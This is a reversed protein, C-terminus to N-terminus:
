YCMYAVCFVIVPLGMNDLCNREMIPVDNLDKVLYESYSLFTSRASTAIERAKLENLDELLFSFTVSDSYLFPTSWKEASGFDASGSGSTGVDESKHYFLTENIECGTLNYYNDCQLSSAFTLEACDFCSINVTETFFITVFNENINIIYHTVSPLNTDPIYSVAKQANGNLIAVIPNGNMDLIFETTFTIYSTDRDIFLTDIRKIENLDELSVNIVIFLGNPSMTTSTTLRVGTRSRQANQVILANATYTSSNVPENFFLTLLGTNLDVTFMDLKPQTRDAFYVTARLTTLDVGNPEDSLDFIANDMLTIYSSNRNTALDVILQIEDLDVKSLMVEIINRNPSIVRGRKLTYRSGSQIDNASHFVIRPFAVSQVNVTEDFYLTFIGSDLDLDFRVFEPNVNDTMYTNVGIAMSSPVAEVYNGNMDKITFSTLSIYTDLSDTALNTLQKIINADYTAIKVVIMTGDNSATYSASTLTYTQGYNGMNQQLTIGTVNLSSANVTENFYLILETTNMDLDFETLLPSSTDPTFLSVRYADRVVIGTIPNDSMDLIGGQLIRLYTTLNQTALDTLRKMENLDAIDLQLMVVTSDNSLVTGNQVQHSVIRPLVPATLFIVSSPMLTQARVTEDFTLTLIGSNMNLDYSQLSPPTTDNTVLSAQVANYMTINSVNNSNMDQLTDMTLSIFTNEINTGLSVQRKIENLDIHGLSIDVIPGDSSLTQSYMPLEGPNLTWSSDIDTFNEVSQLMIEEVAVSSTEIAEDFTLILNGTNLNLTFSWLYPAAVDAFYESVQMGFPYYIPVNPNGSMDKILFDELVIYTDNETTALQRNIKLANLDDRGIDVIIVLGNPSDSKSGSTAYLNVRIIFTDPVPQIGIAEVQLCSANVAESFTLHLQGTTMNLSFEVLEPSTVDDIVGYVEMPSVALSESGEIDEVASGAMTLYTDSETTALNESLKIFNLDITGLDIVIFAGDTNITRSGAPWPLDGTLQLSESPNAGEENQLGIDSINLTAVSVSESFSLLLRGTNLDLTYNKLYPPTEDPIFLTVQLANGNTIPIVDLNGVDRVVDAGITIYTNNISTALDRNALIDNYTHEALHILIEFGDSSNTYSTSDLTVSTIATRADQITIRDTLLEAPAIIDSFTLILQSSDLNLTFEVLSAQSSDDTFQDSSVPYANQPPVAEVYNGAMDTITNSSISIYTNSNNVGLNRNLKIAILDPNSVEFTVVDTGDTSTSPTVIGGTLQVSDLLDIEGRGSLLVIQSIDLTSPRIPENFSLTLSNGTLDLGFQLLKPATEDKTYETVIVAQESTVSEVSNPRRPTIDSIATSDLWLYTDNESFAFEAAKVAFLDTDSLLVTIELSNSSNTYTNDSLTVYERNGQGGQLFISTPMLTSPDVPENFSLLLIGNDLDLDFQILMPSTTDDVFMLADLALSSLVPQLGNGNTDEVANALVSLWCNNINSCLRQDQKVKNLDDDELAVVVFTDNINSINGGQLAMRAQANRFFSQLTLANFNLTTIDVTESFQLTLTGANLDFEVFNVLTPRTTDYIFTDVLMASTNDIERIMNSSMDLVTDNPFTIYCNTPSSCLMKRKIANLDDFTFTVNLTPEDTSVTKGGNLTQVEVNFNVIESANEESQFTIYELVLSSTNVTENFYLAFTGTNLDINFSELVPSREDFTINEVQLAASTLIAIVPNGNMDEIFGPKISVYTDYEATAIDTNRKINNIDDTSLYIEVTTFNRESTQGGSLTESAYSSTNDSQITFSAPTFSRVNVTESFELVILDDSLDLYWAYLVPRISDPIYQSVMTANQPNIEVVPNDNMDLVSDESFSIYTDEISTALRFLEKIPDLDIAELFVQIVTSYDTSVNASTLSYYELNFTTLFDPRQQLTLLSVNLTFPDVTESYSLYLIEATLDLDFSVLQPRVTDPYFEFVESGNTSPIGIVDNGNMDKVLAHSHSIYTNNDSTCFERFQKIYDLDDKHLIVDIFPGNPSIIEGGTLQRFLGDSTDNQLTIEQLNMTDVNVTESFSLTLIESTLNLSFGTLEPNKRDEVFSDVLVASENSVSIVPNSNTDNGLLASFSMYTNRQRTALQTMNKIVNADDFSLYVNIVTHEFMNHLSDTLQYFSDFPFSIIYDQIIIQSVDFTNGAVTEDFTLSLVDSDLDLSYSILSPRSQDATYNTVQLAESTLIPVVYNERTDRVLQMTISIYTTEPSIALMTLRKIENLDLPQINVIVFPELGSISGITDLSLSHHRGPILTESSQLTIQSPNLMPAVVTESFRLTLVATNLDLDFEQLRPSTIDEVFRRVNRGNVVAVAEEGSQDKIVCPAITLWSTLNTEGIHLSKIANLDDLTFNVIVVTEDIMAQTDFFISFEDLLSNGFMPSNIMVRTNNNHLMGSGSGSGSGSSSLEFVRNPMLVTGGTLTYRISGSPDAQLTICSYNVSMIDITEDFYLSALGRNMDLDFWLLRPMTTDTVFVDAKLASDNTPVVPNSNMDMIFESTINLYSTVNSVLLDEIRKIENLDYRTIQIIIVLGNMSNTNGGTLQYSSTPDSERNQLTVATPVLTRANVVESFYVTLLSANVDVEFSTVEPSIFDQYYETAISINEHVPNPMPYNALDYLAGQEIHIYTSELSVALDTILKLANLDIQTATLNLPLIHSNPGIPSAFRLIYHSMLTVDNQITIMSPIISSFDVTEDFTLILREATLNLSFAQLIPGTVDPLYDNVMTANENDIPVVYNEYMDQITFDDLALYTTNMDQALETMFKIRNADFMGIDIVIEPGNDSTTDSGSDETLRHYQSNAISASSQVTIGSVNLTSANVTESFFLTLTPGDMDLDFRELWPQVEDPYFESVQLAYTTNIENVDNLNMDQVLSSTISIFTTGNSIALEIIQRLTNRDEVNLKLQLSTGDVTLPINDGGTLTYNSIDTDNLDEDVRQDLLTLSTPDFSLANVTESFKLTITDTSLNLDFSVLDPSTEDSTYNNVPISTTPVNMNDFADRITYMTLNLYTTDDGIALMNMRKIENLDNDGIIVVIVPWDDSETYSVDTLSYSQTSNEPMNLFTIQMVDLLSANVTESFMLTLEGTNMDLDFSVLVPRIDDNRFINVRMAETNNIEVVPNGNMDQIALSTISLYTNSENTALYPLANLSNFDFPVLQHVLIVVADGTLLNEVSLTYNQLSTSIDNTSLLSYEMIMFTLSDVTESFNLSLNASNMDLDFNLLEPRTVDETFNNVMTANYDYIPIISNNNMDVITVNDLTIFTDEGSTNTALNRIAKINNLDAFSFYLTIVTSDFISNTGGTLKYIATLNSMEQENQLAVSSPNLSSAEVTESFTLFLAGADLDINFSELVPSTLDEEVDDAELAFSSNIAVLLNDNMDLISGYEITLFTNYPTIAIERIRKLENLDSIDLLVDVYISNIINTVRGGTLTVNVEDSSSSNQLTISLIDLSTFNVTESFTLTINGVDMSLRFSLLEPPTEDPIFRTVMTANGNNIPQLMNGNMDAIAFSTLTLFTTMNSTALQTLRKIENLDLDGIQLTIIPWDSDNSYTVDPTFTFRDAESSATNGQITIEGVSLSSVNVTESFTLELQGLNMDLDFGDFTPRVIDEEFDDAMLLEVFEVQNGNMDEITFPDITILTDNISTLLDTLSKIYNLDDTDLKIVIIPDNPGYMPGGMDPTLVYGGELQTFSNSDNNKFTIGSVNLSSANMTENFVLTLWEKSLDVTFLLLYPNVEDETFENAMLTDNSYIEEFLNENMDMIFNETVAIYTNGEETALMTRRKIENLDSNSIFYEIVLQGTLEETYLYGRQLMYNEESSNSNNNRSYLTVQTIDLSSANVTEDFTFLFTGNHLNLSFNVLMPRTTDFIYDYAQLANDDEIATVNNGSMDKVQSSSISIYTNDMDAALYILRKIENLDPITLKLHVFPDDENLLTGGTLTFYHEAESINAHSQLTIEEAIFMRTDVTETYNLTLIGTDLDLSFNGLQPDISDRTYFRVRIGSGDLVERIPNSSMDFVTMNTLVIYTDDETNALNRNKKLANLDQDSISINIFSSFITTFTSSIFVFISENNSATAADQLMFQQLQFQPAWVTETFSISLVADTMDLDFYSLQPRTTDNIFLDTMMATTSNIAVLPNKNMDFVTTNTVTIYTNNASTALLPFAKVANLEKHILLVSIYLGDEITTVNGATLQVISLPVDSTSDNQLTIQAVDFSSVNVTESFTLLLEGTNLDFSFSILEPSTVDPIHRTVSLLAPVVLNATTDKIALETIHLYTDDEGTALDTLKKIQNLDGAGITINIEPWDPSVSYSETYDDGATLVHNTSSNTDTSRLEIYKVNLSSVNVTENFTLLLIGLNLDLDFSELVPDKTDATYNNVRIARLGTIEDVPNMNMDFVTTSDIYIYTNNENTAFSPISKIYNLDAADLQIVIFTLDPLLSTGGVLQRDQAAASSRRRDQLTIGSAYLSSQNVTETFYLFLQELTLDLDFSILAPTTADEFHASAILASGDPIPLIFNGAVDQLAAVTLRLYTDEVATALESIRKIENLDPDNLSVNFEWYLAGNSIIGGTLTHSYEMMYATANYQLTVQSADFTTPDVTESFRLTIVGDDMDLTFSTLEPSIEDRFYELVQQPMFTIIPVVPNFKMDTVTNSIISIYTDSRSTGLGLIRKIEDSDLRGLQITVIHSYVDNSLTENDIGLTHATGLLDGNPGGLLTITSIDLTMIVNVTESFELILEETTLSINFHFLTPDVTDSVYDRVMLATEGNVLEVVPQSNQDYIAHSELTLWTTNRFLAIQRAKIGNLDTRTLEFRVVTSDTLDLLRGDTLTYSNTSNVYDQLIIGTFDISSTNVTEVFELVMINNTLDLDFNSLVPRTTDNIYFTINLPNLPSIADVPNRNMDQILAATIALYSTEPSVFLSERQKVVNLDDNDFIVRVQQGNVSRTSGNTLTYSVRPDIDNLLTIATPDLSSANVVEDFNLILEESNFNVSFSVLQPNTTDPTFMSVSRTVNFATNTVVSMDDIAGMLITLYTTSDDVALGEDLKIKQVHYFDVQIDIDPSNDSIVSSNSFTISTGSGDNSSHLILMPYQISTVNVTEDFHLTLIESDMNLDFTNLVPGTIDDQYFSVELADDVLIEEVSNMNMDKIAGATISLYTDNDSSALETLYKINNLDDRGITLVITTNDNSSTSSVETLTFITTENLLSSNTSLLTFQTANLTGADVTESFTLIIRGLNMDLDFSILVPDVHDPTFFTVALSSSGDVRPVIENDNMDMVFGSSYTIYTNARSTALGRLRKIENLDADDLSLTVENSNILSTNTNNADEGGIVTLTRKFGTTGTNFDSQITFETVDLTSVDVVESFTLSITESTLNLDFRLLEPAKFDATFDDVPIADDSPVEMVPNRNMDRIMDMSYSIYTTDNSVALDTQFKMSDLDIPGLQIVIVTSDSSYSVSNNESGVSLVTFSSNETLNQESQIIIEAIQLSSANVTEDFTLELIEATLNLSFGVLYPASVDYTYNSVFEAMLINVAGIPNRVGDSEMDHVMGMDFSLYTNMPSDALGILRKVENLDSVTLYLNIINTNNRDWDGGILTYRISNEMRSGQLTLLSPQFSSANVTESFSLYLLGYDMHLEFSRLTPPTVDGGYNAAMVSDDVTVNTLPNSNTDQVASSTINIFTDSQSTALNPLSKITNTDEEILTIEIVSRAPFRAFMTSQIIHSENNFGYLTIQSPDFDEVNVTESFHLTLSGQGDLNFDFSDLEPSTTDPTYNTPFLANTSTFPIAENRALDDIFGASIVLYTNNISTALNEKAKISNLNDNSLYFLVYYGITSNTVTNEEVMEMDLPGMFEGIADRQIILSSTDITDINIVDDFSILLTGEDMDLHFGEARPGTVDRMYRFNDAFQPGYAVVPNGNMDSLAANHIQIYRYFLEGLMFSTIKIDELDERSIRVEIQTRLTDIYSVEGSVLDRSYQSGSALLISFLTYNISSINVPENFELQLLGEDYDLLLLQEVVPSTTDETYNNVPLAMVPDIPFNRNPSDGRRTDVALGAEVSIFTTDDDVAFDEYAKLENQDAVTLTFTLRLGDNSRIPIDTADELSYSRTANTQHNHLTIKSRNFFTIQVPEDFYLTFFNSNLNLDFATVNPGIMDVRYMDANEAEDVTLVMVPNASMDFLADSTFTIYSTGVTVFLGTDLKIANLDRIDLLYVIVPDDRPSLITGSYQLTYNADGVGITDTLTISTSQFTSHDVTENFTLSLIGTTMDVDFSVLHPMSTDNIYIDAEIGTCTLDLSVYFIYILSPVCIYM